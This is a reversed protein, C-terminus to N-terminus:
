SRFAQSEQPILWTKPFFKYENPFARQMKMLNRAL